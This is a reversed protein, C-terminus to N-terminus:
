ASLDFAMSFYALSATALVVVAIQHFLRIGRPRQLIAGINLMSLPCLSILSRVMLDLAVILLLASLMFVFAVWFWNYGHISLYFGVDLLSPNEVQEAMATPRSPQQRASLITPAGPARARGNSELESESDMQM